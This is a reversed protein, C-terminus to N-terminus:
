YEGLREYKKLNSSNFENRFKLNFLELNNIKNSNNKIKSIKSLNLNNTM